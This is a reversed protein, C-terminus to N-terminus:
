LRDECQFIALKCYGYVWLMPRPLDILPPDLKESVPPPPNVSSLLDKVASAARPVIKSM